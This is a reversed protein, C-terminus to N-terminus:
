LVSLRDGALRGLTGISAVTAGVGTEITRTPMSPAIADVPDQAMVTGGVADIHAAGIAGDCGMGTLVVALARRGFLQAASIFLPDAAPRVFHVKPGDYPRLKPVRCLGEFRLHRDGPALYIVNAEVTVPNDVVVVTRGSSEIREAITRIMWDPGHQVVVVPGALRAPLRDVFAYLAEPGGTSAAVLLVPLRTVRSHARTLQAQRVSSPQHSCQLTDEVTGILLLKSAPKVLYADAGARLAAARGEDTDIQTCLVMPPCRSISERAKAIVGLGNLHPMLWDILVLDYPNSMLEDLAQIGDGVVVVDYGARTLLGSHLRATAPEDEAVLIRPPFPFIVSNM